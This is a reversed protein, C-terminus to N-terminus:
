AKSVKQHKLVATWFQGNTEAVEIGKEEIEAVLAAVRYQARVKAATPHIKRGTLDELTKLTEIVKTEIESM